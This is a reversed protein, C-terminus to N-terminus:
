DGVNLSIRKCMEPTLLSSVVDKNVEHMQTVMQDAAGGDSFFSSYEVEALNRASVTHDITTFHERVGSSFKYAADVKLQSLYEQEEDKSRLFNGTHCHWRDGASFAGSHLHDSSTRFLLQPDYDKEDGRFVFRDLCKIGFAAIKNDSVGIKNIAPMLMSRLEPWVKAWRTYDMNHAAITNPETRLAWQLSGDESVSNLRIGVPKLTVSQVGTEANLKFLSGQLKEAKPLRDKLEDELGLFSNVVSESFEEVFECFVAIEVIAHADNIPEFFPKQGKSM